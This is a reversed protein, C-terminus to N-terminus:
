VDSTLGGDLQMRVDVVTVGKGEPYVMCPNLDLERIQPAAVMLQSVTAVLQALADIDCAPRGRVGKLLAAGKLGLIADKAEAVTIPALRIATDKIVEVLIGGLGVMVMPGFSPDRVGGVIMETAPAAMGQIMVGEGDAFPGFRTEFDAVVERLREPDAVNLVVGGADSKHVAKASLIKAAVPGDLKHPVDDASRLLGWSPVRLGISKLVDFGEILLSTRGADALRAIREATTTIAAPVAVPAAVANRDLRLQHDRCLRLAAFSEEVSVFYPYPHLRRVEALEIEDALLTLLVPKGYKENLEKVKPLMKRSSETEFPPFYGFLMVVADFSPDQVAMELLKAYLDFDFMDGLDLPNGRRIVARGAAADLLEPSYPALEFGYEAACDASVVAHGGSRSLVAVRDGHMPPLGFAKTRSIVDMQSHVRCAGAQKLMADVVADDAMLAATHSYAQKTGAETRGAKHVVVPKPCDRLAEFLARGRCIGELYLVIGTTERDATFHRVYDVEDLDLKNGISVVKALGVNRAAMGFMYAFGMGGSQTAISAGGPHWQPRMPVFIPMFGISPHMVGLGNPGTFRIGHQRAVRLVDAALAEGEPGLEAFGASQIIAHRIGKRGAQDLTEAVTRAPTLVVVVDIGDPLEDWSTKITHGLVEAPKRGLLHIEGQYKFTVLNYLSSFALNGREPSVGTLLVSRPEFLRELVVM